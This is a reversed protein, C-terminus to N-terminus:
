HFAVVLGLWSYLELNVFLVGLLFNMFSSSLIWFSPNVQTAPGVELEVVSGPELLVDNFENSGLRLSEVEEVPWQIINSGTKQDFLM